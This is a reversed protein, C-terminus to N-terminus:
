REAVLRYLKTAAEARTTASGPRFTRDQFGRVLGATNATRIGDAAWAPFAGADAFDTGATLTVPVLGKRIVRQLIVAMEARTIRRSGGFTGDPYGALLGAETAAGIAGRVWGAADTFRAAAEPKAALGLARTLMSVFEARTVGANPNFRGDPFGSVIGMGALTRISGRGWHDAIDALTPLPRTAFVAFRSFREVTVTLTGIGVQGGLFIWRGTREDYVFVSPVQGAAVKAADFNLTLQVPAKFEGGTLGLAVVESAATLGAGVATQLLPRADATSLIRATIRPAPGTVAGATVTVEAARELRVVTPRDVAVPREVLAPPPVIIPIPVPVYAVMRGRADSALGGSPFFTFFALVILAAVVTKGKGRVRLTM